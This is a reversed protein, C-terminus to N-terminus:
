ANIIIKKMTIGTSIPPKPLQSTGRINPEGSMANGRSFLKLNQNKTGASVRSRELASTSDPAPVPQVTYGGSLPLKAWEPAETSKAIKERWRAPTDERIPATFKILVSPFRRAIPISISRTGKNAHDTSTVAIKNSNDKGTKAPAM